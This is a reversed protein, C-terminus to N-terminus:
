SKLRPPAATAPFQPMYCYGPERRQRKRIKLIRGWGALFGRPPEPSDSALAEHLRPLQHFPVAAYM